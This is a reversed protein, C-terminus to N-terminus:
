KEYQIVKGRVHLIEILGVIWVQREVWTKIEIINDGRMGAVADNVAKEYNMRPTVPIFWLLNFSSSTGESVGLIRYQRNEIVKAQQSIGTLRTRNYLCGTMILACAILGIMAIPFIRGIRPRRRSGNYLVIIDTRM